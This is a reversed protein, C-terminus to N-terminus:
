QENFFEIEIKDIGNFSTNWAMSYGSINLLYVVDDYYIDPQEKFSIKSIIDGEYCTPGTLYFEKTVNLRHQRNLSPSFGIKLAQNVWKLHCEHSLNTILAAKENHTFNKVRGLAFGCFNSIWRGPEFICTFNLELENIHEVLEKIDERTLHTFGGGLNVYDLEVNFKECYDMVEKIMAKYTSTSNAETGSHYHLAKADYHKDLKVGFRSQHSKQHNILDTNIRLAYNKFLDKFKHYDFMSNFDHYISNNKFNALAFPSSNWLLKNDYIKVLNYEQENSLDFGSLYKSALELVNKHPFSKVPFIFKVHKSELNSLFLFNEEILAINYYLEIQKNEFLFKKLIKKSIKQM